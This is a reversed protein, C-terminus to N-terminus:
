LAKRGYVFHFNAYLHNAKNRFDRRVGAMLVQCEDNSWGLIRTLLALTFPEVCACMQEMQYLGLEKMKPDKPWTGMPIKMKM